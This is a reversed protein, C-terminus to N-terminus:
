IRGEFDAESFCKPPSSSSNINSSGWFCGYLMCDQCSTFNGCPTMPPSPPCSGRGERGGLSAECGAFTVNVGEEQVGLTGTFVCIEEANRWACLMSFANLCDAMETWQSCNGAVLRLVDSRLTGVFGGFVVASGDQPDLLSTHSYRSANAPLGPLEVQDWTDCLTNYLLLDRSFCEQSAGECGAFSM